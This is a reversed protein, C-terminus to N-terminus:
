LSLWLCLWLFEDKAMNELYRPAKCTAELVALTKFARLLTSSMGKPVSIGKTTWSLVATIGCPSSRYISCYWVRWKRSICNVSSIGCRNINHIDRNIEITKSVMRDLQGSRQTSWMWLHPHRLLLTNISIVPKFTDVIAKCISHRPIRWTNKFVHKLGYMCSGLTKMLNTYISAYIYINIFSVANWLGDVYVMLLGTISVLVHTNFRCIFLWWTQKLFEVFLWLVMLVGDVYWWGVIM